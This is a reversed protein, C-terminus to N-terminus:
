LFYLPGSAWAAPGFGQDVLLEILVGQGGLLARSPRHGRSRAFGTGRRFRYWESDLRKLQCPNREPWNSPPNDADFQCSRGSFLISAVLQCLNSGRSGLLAEAMEPLHMSLM